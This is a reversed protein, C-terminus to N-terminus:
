SVPSFIARPKNFGPVQNSEVGKEVGKKTAPFADFM